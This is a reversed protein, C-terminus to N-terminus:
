ATTFSYTLRTGLDVSRVYKGSNFLSELKKNPSGLLSSVDLNFPNGFAQFVAVQLSGTNIRVWNSTPSAIYIFGAKFYAALTPTFDLRPFAM